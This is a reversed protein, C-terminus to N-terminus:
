GFLVLHLGRIYSREWDQTEMRALILSKSANICKISYPLWDRTPEAVMLHIRLSWVRGGYVLILHYKGITMNRGQGPM